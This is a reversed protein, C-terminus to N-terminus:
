AAAASEHAAPWGASDGASSSSSAAARRSYSRASSYWSRLWRLSDRRSSSKSTAAALADPSSPSRTMTSSSSSRSTRVAVPSNRASTMGSSASPSTASGTRRRGARRTRRGSPHRRRGPRHGRRPRGPRRGPVPRPRPRPRPIGLPDVRGRRRPCRPRRRVGLITPPRQGSSGSSASSRGVAHRHPEGRRLEHLAALDQGALPQLRVVRRRDAVLERAPWNMWTRVPSKEPITSRRGNETFVASAPVPM